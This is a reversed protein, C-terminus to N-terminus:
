PLSVVKTTLEWSLIAKWTVSSTVIIPFSSVANKFIDVSFPADVVSIRSVTVIANDKGHFLLRILCAM